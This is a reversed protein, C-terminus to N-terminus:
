RGTTAGPASTSPLTDTRRLMEILHKSRKWAVTVGPYLAKIPDLAQHLGTQFEKSATFSDYPLVLPIVKDVFNPVPNWSGVPQKLLLSRLRSYSFGRRYLRVLISIRARMEHHSHSSLRGIRVCEGKVYGSITAPPHLSQPSLYTFAGMEKWRPRWELRREHAVLLIEIDLFALKSDSIEHTFRLSPDIVENLNKMFVNWEQETSLWVTFGDDIFRYYQSIHRNDRVLDHRDLVLLLFINALTVSDSAGMPIGKIQRYYQGGYFLLTDRCKRPLLELIWQLHAPLVARLVKVLRDCDINPYLAEVDISALKCGAPLGGPKDFGARKFQAILENTDKLVPNNPWHSELFWELEASIM